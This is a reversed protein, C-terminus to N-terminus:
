WKERKLMRAHYKKSKERVKTEEVTEEDRYANNLSDFIQRNRMKEIYEKAANTFVQSRSCSLKKSLKNVDKFVDDPISIATKM